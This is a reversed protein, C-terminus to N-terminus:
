SNCNRCASDPSESNIKRLGVWQRVRGDGGGGGPLFDQMFGQKSMVM